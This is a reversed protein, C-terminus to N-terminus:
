CILSILLTPLVTYKGNLNRKEPLVTPLVEQRLSRLWFVKQINYIKNNLQDITMPFYSGSYNTTYTSDAGDSGTTHMTRKVQGLTFGTIIAENSLTYNIEDSCSGLFSALIAIIPLFLKRM